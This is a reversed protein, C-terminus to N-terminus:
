CSRIGGLPKALALFWTAGLVCAISGQFCGMAVHSNLHHLKFLRSTFDELDFVDQFHDFVMNSLGKAFLHFM